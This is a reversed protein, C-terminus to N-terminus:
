LGNGILIFPAWYYPHSLASQKIPRGTANGIIEITGREIGLSDLDNTLLAVQAQRLADAKTSGQQLAAYFAHM